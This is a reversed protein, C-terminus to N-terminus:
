VEDEVGLGEAGLRGRVELLGLDRGASQLLTRLVFLLPPCAEPGGVGRGEGVPDPGCTGVLSPTQQEGNDTPPYEMYFQIHDAM